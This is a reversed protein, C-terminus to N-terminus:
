IKTKEIWNVKGNELRLTLSKLFKILEDKEFHEFGERNINLTLEQTEYDFAFELALKREM